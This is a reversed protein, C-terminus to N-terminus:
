KQTVESLSRESVEILDSLSLTCSMYGTIRYFAMVSYLVAKGICGVTGMGWWHEVVRCTGAVTMGDSPWRERRLCGLAEASM